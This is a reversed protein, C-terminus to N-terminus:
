RISDAVYGDTIYLVVDGNNDIVVLDYGLIDNVQRSLKIMSDEFSEYSSETLETVDLDEINVELWKNNLTTVEVQYYMQEEIEEATLEELEVVTSDYSEKELYEVTNDDLPQYTEQFSPRITMGLLILISLTVLVVGFIYIDNVKKM